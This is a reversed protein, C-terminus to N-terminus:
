YQEQQPVTYTNFNKEFFARVLLHFCAPYLPASDFRIDKVLYLNLKCFDMEIYVSIYCRQGVCYFFARKTAFSLKEIEAHILTLKSEPGRQGWAAYDLRHDFSPIGYKKVIM